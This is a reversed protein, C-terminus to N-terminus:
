PNCRKCPEYGQQLAEERSSFGVKNSEAMEAVSSCDPRHFKMTNSNGVYVMTSGQEQLDETKSKPASGQNQSDETKSDTTGAQGEQDAQGEGTYGPGSSTGDAYDIAIGPQVNYCYVCFQVGSGEDEVSEAEMLVGSALLNNGEFVPTVRYLVHNGTAKIYDAVTTEYPLMGQVNLYRTGTILNKENANEATLSYAILHCRNYLYNGDIGAYKVLHWGTPKIDGIAGRKETPMLEQGICAFATGCRGLSDLSSYAEFAAASFDELRFYPKNEHVTVSAQQSYAPVQDVSFADSVQIQNSVKQENGTGFFPSGSCGQFCFSLALVLLVAASRFGRSKRNSKRRRM